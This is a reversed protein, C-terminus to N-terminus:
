GSEAGKDIDGTPTRELGVWGLGLRRVYLQSIFNQILEEWGRTRSM